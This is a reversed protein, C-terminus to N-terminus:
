KLQHLAELREPRTEGIGILLGSTFPVRAQGAAEITALRLAPAKDPCGYHVGGKEMLRPSASELMVGMSPGAHRRRELDELTLLGPNLHPLLGTEDFVREAVFGLYDLTSAFGMQDLAARAAPWRIEPQDGLTFLAEKCGMARGQRAVELVEDLSMYVAQGKRPPRAFTCYRCVDRCLHTLPLFVKRSYSVLDGHGADRLAAAEALLGALPRELLDPAEPARWSQTM